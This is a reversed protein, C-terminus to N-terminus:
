RQARLRADFRVTVSDHLKVAGLPIKPQTLGLASLSLTLEGKLSLAEPSETRVVLCEARQERSGSKVVLQARTNAMTVRVLVESVSGFVQTRIKDEITAKDSSAATGWRETGHRCSQTVEISAVIFRLLIADNEIRSASALPARLRLDHAVSALM